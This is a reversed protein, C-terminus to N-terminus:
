LQWYQLFNYPNFWQGNPARIGFHLHDPTNQANGTHGVYGLLEGKRILKGEKLEPAYASLHAFYYYLGDAGRLGIREGGLGVWGKREIMGDTVAFVPTGEPAFLDTGEHKRKGGDRDAHWTDNYKCSGPPLPFLYNDSFLPATRELLRYRTKVAKATLLGGTEELTKFWKDPKTKSLHNVLAKLEAQDPYTDFLEEELGVQYYAALLQWPLGTNQEQEKALTVFEAPLQSLPLYGKDVAKFWPWAVAWIFVAALLLVLITRRMTFIVPQRSM